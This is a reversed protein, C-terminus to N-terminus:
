GIQWITALTLLYKENQLNEISVKLIPVPYMRREIEPNISLKMSKLIQFIKHIYVLIWFSSKENGAM